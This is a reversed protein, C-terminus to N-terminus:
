CSLIMPFISTQKCLRNHLNSSAIYSPDPWADLGASRCFNRCCSGRSCRNSARTPSGAVLTCSAALDRDTLTSQNSAWTSSSFSLTDLATSDGDTRAFRNSLYNRQSFSNVAPGLLNSARTPSGFRLTGSTTSDGDTRASRNSLCNRWSLCDVALGLLNSVQTPSGFGLTGSATM